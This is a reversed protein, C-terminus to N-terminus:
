GIGDRLREGVIGPRDLGRRRTGYAGGGVDLFEAHFNGAEFEQNFLELGFELDLALVILGEFEM